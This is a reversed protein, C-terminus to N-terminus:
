NPAGCGAASIAYGANILYTAVLPAYEDTLPVNGPFQSWRIAQLMKEQDNAFSTYIDTMKVNLCGPIISTMPSFSEQQAKKQKVATIHHLLFLFALAIVLSMTIDHNKIFLILAMVVAQVAPMQAYQSLELQPAFHGAMTFFFVTIIAAFVPETLRNVWPETYLNISKHAGDVYQAYQDMHSVSFQFFEFLAPHPQYVRNLHPCQQYQRVLKLLGVSFASRGIAALIYFVNPSLYLLNHILEGPFRKTKTAIMCLLVIQTRSLDIGLMLAVTTAVDQISRPYLGSSIGYSWHEDNPFITTFESAEWLDPELWLALLISPEGNTVARRIQKVALRLRQQRPTTGLEILRKAFRHHGFRLSEYLSRGLPVHLHADQMFYRLLSEYGSVALTLMLQRQPSTSTPLHNDDDDGQIHDQANKMQRAM